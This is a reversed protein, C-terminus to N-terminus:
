EMPWQSYKCHMRRMVITPSSWDNPEGWELEFLVRQSPKRKERSMLEEKWFDGGGGDEEGEPGEM